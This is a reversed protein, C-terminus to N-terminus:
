KRVGPFLGRLHAGVQVQKGVVGPLRARNRSFWGISRGRWRCFQGVSLWSLEDFGAPLCGPRQDVPRQKREVGNNKAAAKM